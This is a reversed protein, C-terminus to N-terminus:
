EAGEGGEIEVGRGAGPCCMREYQDYILLQRLYNSLIVAGGGGGVVGLPVGMTNDHQHETTANATDEGRCNFPLWHRAKVM